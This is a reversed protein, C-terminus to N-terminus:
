LREEIKKTIEQSNMMIEFWPGWQYPLTLRSNKDKLLEWNIWATTVVEDPNPQFSDDFWGVFVQDMEHESFAENCKVQYQFKHVPQLNEVQEPKIGLEFQLRRWACSEYSEDPWVNGCVTNAWQLAGVIKKNSRQQILLELKGSKQNRRFLFVSIARHLKAQGRHAEIKDMTGIIEDTPTVLVVQDQM